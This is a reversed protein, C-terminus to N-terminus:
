ETSETGDILRKIEDGCRSCAFDGDGIWFGFIANFKEGCCDCWLTSVDFAAYVESHRTREALKRMSECEGREIIEPAIRIATTM